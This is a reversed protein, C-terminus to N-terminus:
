AVAGTLETQERRRRLLSVLGASTALMFALVALLAVDGGPWRVGAGEGAWFIGFTSLMVGVAFKMTNEPIQSLPRHVTLGVLLVVV